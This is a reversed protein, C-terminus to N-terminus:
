KFKWKFGGHTERKGKCCNSIASAALDLEHAALAGSDWEQIVEEDTITYQVVPKSIKLAIKDIRNKERISAGIFEKIYPAEKIEKISNFQNYKLKLVNVVTNVHNIKIDHKSAIEAKSLGKLLEDLIFVEKPMLSLKFAEHVDFEEVNNRVNHQNLVQIMGVSDLDSKNLIYQAGRRNLDITNLFEKYVLGYLFNDLHFETVFATLGYEHFKIYCNQVIDESFAKLEGEKEVFGRGKLLNSAYKLLKFRKLNFDELKVDIM